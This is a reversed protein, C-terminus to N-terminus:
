FILHRFEQHPPKGIKKYFGFGLGFPYFHWKHNSHNGDGSANVVAVCSLALWWGLLAQSPYHKENNIRALAPLWSVGYWTLKSVVSHSRQALVIPLVAGYFAHGSVARHNHFWNWNSSTQTPRGSGLMQTLLAQQPAGLLLVRFCHDSIEQLNSKPLFSLAFSIPIAYHYQMLSAYGDTYRSIKNIWSSRIDHQWGNYLKNDLETNALSGSVFLGCMWLPVGVSSFYNHYDARTDEIFSCITKSPHGQSVCLSPHGLYISIILRVLLKYM